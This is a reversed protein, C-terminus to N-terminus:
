HNHRCADSAPEAASDLLQLRYSGTTLNDHVIRNMVRQLGSKVLDHEDDPLVQLLVKLLDYPSPDLLNGRYLVRILFKGIKRSSILLGCVPRFWPSRALRNQARLLHDMLWKDDDIRVIIISFLSKLLDVLVHHILHIRFRLYEIDAHASKDQSVCQTFVASNGASYALHVIVAHQDVYGLRILKLLVPIHRSATVIVTIRHFHRDALM